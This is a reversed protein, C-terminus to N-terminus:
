VAVVQEKIAPKSCDRYHRTPEPLAAGQQFNLSPPRDLKGCVLNLSEDDQQANEAKVQLIESADTVVESGLDPSDGSM